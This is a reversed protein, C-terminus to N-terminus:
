SDFKPVKGREDLRGLPVPGFHVTWIGDDVEELGLTEHAVARGIYLKEGCWRLQGGECVTRTRYHRPYCIEPLRSPYPRLSPTYQSVPPRQGLAQHPRDHNYEHRFRDFARQQSSFTTKPPNAVEAKLERHMREHRGNQEPHGPAIREPRIGLKIWKISLRTLGGLGTSAFPTGNDSRIVDPLGYDRFIRELLADVSTLRITPFGQCCLIYRSYHDCLTLPYCLQGNGLRFQGKYDISWVANSQTSDTLGHPTPSAHRRRRHEQVLGHRKLIRAVTSRSPVSLEPLAQEFKVLLKDPGWRPHQRRLSLVRSEVAKEVANPHHLSARSRPALGPFGQSLFREVWKYGTKRSIGFRSCVFSFSEEKRLWLRIFKSREDMACTEKWPM